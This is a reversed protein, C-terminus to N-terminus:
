SLELLTWLPETSQKATVEAAVDLFTHVYNCSTSSQAKSNIKGVDQLAHSCRLQGTGMISQPM